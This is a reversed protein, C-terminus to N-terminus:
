EFKSLSLEYNIYTENKIKSQRQKAFGLKVFVKNSAINGKKVKAMIKLHSQKKKFEILALRLAIEGYGMGRYKNEISYDIEASSGTQDFRVQGIPKDKKNVVFLASGSAKIKALFWKKHDILKVPSTNVSNNRVDADNVWKYYTIVDKENALRITVDRETELQKFINRLSQTSSGNFYKLRNEFYTKRLNTSNLSNYKKSFEEAKFAVGSKILFKYINRQNSATQLVFLLGGVSAYEYSITSSSCIAASSDKMAKCMEAETLGSHLEIKVEKYESIVKKLELTHKYFSGVVINISRISSNKLCIKLAKLTNNDPDTGGMNIFVSNRSQKKLLNAVPISKLFSKRLIAFPTGLYLRTHKKVSYDKQNIGESHNIIADAVFDIEHLDDVCVLKFCNSKIKKQYNTDFGYGDIVVIDNLGCVTKSITLAEKKFNSSSPLVIMEDCNEKIQDALYKDPNQTVFVCTYDRRLIASLSLLRIVHGYGILKSGDARFLIRQKTKKLRSRSKVEFIM